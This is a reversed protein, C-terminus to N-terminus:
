KKREVIIKDRDLQFKVVGTSELLDLVKRVDEYRSITGFFTERRIDQDRYEIRVNYWRALKNMIMGLEENNFMFFGEKWTIAYSSEVNMVSVEAKSVCAQQGPKLIMNKEAAKLVISGELLTTYSKEDQAYSSINFHTGLVQVEQGGSVVIFPVLPDKAVEFYGEGTLEIRREKLGVFSVPYKLTSSANLWVESGDPLAVRYQEGSSTALLNNGLHGNANDTKGYAIRGQASETIKVGWREAIEGNATGNLIIKKGNALTLTAANKGPMAFALQKSKSSDSKNYYLLGVGITLLVLAAAAFRYWKRSFSKLKPVPLVAIENQISKWIVHKMQQMEILEVGPDLNVSRQNYWSELLAIEQDSAIGRHYKRLLESLQLSTKM